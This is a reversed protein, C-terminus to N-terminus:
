PERDSQRTHAATDVLGSVRNQMTSNGYPRALQEVVGGPLNPAGARSPDEERLTTNALSEGRIKEHIM